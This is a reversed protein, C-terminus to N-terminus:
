TQGRCHYMRNYLWVTHLIGYSWMDSGLGASYLICTTRDKFTRHPREALANQHSSGPATTELNYDEDLVTQCFEHSGALEGGNDTRVTQVINVTDDTIDVDNTDPTYGAAKCVNRFSKSKALIGKTSTTILTRTPDIKFKRGVSYFEKFCKLGNGEHAPVIGEVILDKGEQIISLHRLDYGHHNIYVSRGYKKSATDGFTFSDTLSLLAGEITGIISKLIASNM